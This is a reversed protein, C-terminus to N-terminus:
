YTITPMMGLIGNIISTEACGPKLRSSLVEFTNHGFSADDPIYGSNAMGNTLTAMMTHKFPSEQKFRQAIENYVEGNVYGIAVDNVM